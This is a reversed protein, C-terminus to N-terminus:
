TRARLARVRRNMSPRAWAAFLWGRVGTANTSHEAFFADPDPYIGLDQNVGTSQVATDQGRWCVNPSALCTTGLAYGLFAGSTSPFRARVGDLYGQDLIVGELAVWRDEFLVEVWSHVISRPALAYVVPDMVGRQLRKEVTAAHFRCPIDVARLLAMLLTSKTNCQGYGQAAVTSAPLDDAQNYGFLIEDRVYDYVAGIRERAPLSKWGRSEVLETLVQHDLDLMRTATLHNESM